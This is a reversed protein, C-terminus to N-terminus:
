RLLASPTPTRATQTGYAAATAMPHVDVGMTGHWRANRTALREPTREYWNMLEQSGVWVYFSAIWLLFLGGILITMILLNRRM